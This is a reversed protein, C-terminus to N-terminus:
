HSRKLCTTEYFGWKKMSDVTNKADRRNVGIVGNAGRRFWGVSYIPVTQFVYPHNDQGKNLLDTQNMFLSDFHLFMMVSVKLWLIQQFIM